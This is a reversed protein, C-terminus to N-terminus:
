FLFYTSNKQFPSFLLNYLYVYYTTTPIAFYIVIM